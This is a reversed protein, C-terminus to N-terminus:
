RPPICVQEFAAFTATPDWAGIPQTAHAVPRALESLPWASPKQAPGLTAEASGQAGGLLAGADLTLGACHAARRLWTCPAAKNQKVRPARARPPALSPTKRAACLMSASTQLAVAILAQGTAAYTHLM